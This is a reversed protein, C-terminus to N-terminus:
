EISQLLKEVREFVSRMQRLEALTMCTLYISILGLIVVVIILTYIPWQSTSGFMWDMMQM